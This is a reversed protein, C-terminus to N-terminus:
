SSAKRFSRAASISLALQRQRFADEAAVQLRFANVFDPAALVDLQRPNVPQRPLAHLPGSHRLEVGLVNQM